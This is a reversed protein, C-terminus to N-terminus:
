NPPTAANRKWGAKLADLLSENLPYDSGDKHEAQLAMSTPGTSERYNWYTWHFGAEEFLRICTSVWRVQQGPPPAGAEYGFEGVWVPVNWKTEFRVAPEMVSWMYDPDVKAKYFAATLYTDGTANDLKVWASIRYTRGQVVRLRRGIWGNYDVTGHVKLSGARSHGVTPDYQVVDHPMREARFVKPGTNFDQYEIDRKDTADELRVDDFWATGSNGSSRLLISVSSVGAPPTFTKELLVWDRTGKIGPGNDLNSSWSASDKYFHFTYLINRDPMKLADVLFEADSGHDGCVVIIKDPDVTRIAPIVERYLALLREPSGQVTNPENMLEYGAVEPRDRYRRAIEKWLAIYRARSGPDTWIRNKGGATYPQLSQGGPVVHMDLIVYQGYKRAWEIVEDFRRFGDEKFAGSDDQLDNYSFVLRAVNAGWEAQRRMDNETYVTGSLHWWGWDLGRLRIPKGNATLERGQVRLPPLPLSRPMDAAVACGPSAAGILIAGAAMIAAAARFRLRATAVKAMARATENGRIPM